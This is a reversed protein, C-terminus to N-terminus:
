NGGNIFTNFVTSSATSIVATNNSVPSIDVGIPSFPNPRGENGDSVLEITSDKLTSFAPNSFIGDDLKINNVNLLTTIFEQGVTSSASTTSKVTNTTTIPAAKNATSTLTNTTTTPKKFFVIAGVIVVLAIGVFLIIKKIQPSM